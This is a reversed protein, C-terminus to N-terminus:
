AEVWEDGVTGDGIEDNSIGATVNRKRNSSITIRNKKKKEAKGAKSKIERSRRQKEKGKREKGKEKKREKM